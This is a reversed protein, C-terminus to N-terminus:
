ATRRPEPVPAADFLALFSRAGHRWDAAEAMARGGARLRERLDADRRLTLMSEALAGLSADDVRLGNVGHRVTGADGDAIVPQGRAGAELVMRDLEEAGGNARARGPLVFVDGLAHHPNLEHPALPGTFLIKGTVGQDAAIADMAVGDDAPGKRASTGRAIGTEALDERAVGETGNTKPAAPCPADGM